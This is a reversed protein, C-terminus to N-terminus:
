SVMWRGMGSPEIRSPSWAIASRSRRRSFVRQTAPRTQARRRRSAVKGAPAPDPRRWGRRHAASTHGIHPRHVAALAAARGAGPQPGQGPDHGPQIGQAPRDLRRGGGPVERRAPSTRCRPRGTRPGRLPRTALPLGTGRHRGRDLRRSRRGSLGPRAEGRALRRPASLGPRAEGTRGCHGRFATIPATGVPFRGLQM